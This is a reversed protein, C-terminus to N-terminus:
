KVTFNRAESEAQGGRGDDALVKWQYDGAPLNFKERCLADTGAATCSSIGSGSGSGGVGCAILTASGTLAFAAIAVLLSRRGGHTLGFGILMLGAGLAGVGYGLRTTVTDGGNGIVLDKPECGAFVGNPCVYLYYHITDGDLDTLKYWVFPTNKDGSGGPGPWLLWTGAGPLYPPQNGLGGGGAGGGGGSPPAPFVCSGDNLTASANYNTATANTCGYLDFKATAYTVVGATMSTVLVCPTLAGACTTGTPEANTITWGSFVAGPNPTAALNYITGPTVAEGCQTTPCNINVGDTVTGPGTVTVILGEAGFTATLTKNASMALSLPSATGVVSGSWGFFFAPATPTATLSITAASDYTETCTGASCANMLSLAGIGDSVTGTGVITMSLTSAANAGTEYAGIDCRALKDANGDRPRSVGRQDTTVTGGACDGADIAPSGANLAMTQTTGGNNALAGLGHAGAAVVIDNNVGNTFCSADDDLNFGNSTFTIGKKLCNGGTPSGAIISNTINTTDWDSLGGGNTASNGSITSNSITTTRGNIMGGGNTASNGSITTNTITLAGGNLVGGGSNNASNGSITSNTINATIWNDVGGGNNTASNGSITSNTINATALNYVGGGTVQGGTIKVGTITVAVANVVHIVRDVGGGNITTAGAGAGQITMAVLIDLAGSANADDGSAGTLTYTGAPLIITDGGAATVCDGGTTDGPLNANNIAERLSCLGDAGVTDATTTVNITAALSPPPNWAFFLLFLVLSGMISM